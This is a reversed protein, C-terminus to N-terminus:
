RQTALVSVTVGSQWGSGRRSSVVGDEGIVRLGNENNGGVLAMASEGPDGLSKREGGVQLSVVEAEGGDRFLVGVSLEDVWTADIATGSDVILDVRAESGLAVPVSDQNQDRIISSVVLRAGASTALLAAVRAGDRSVELSVIEADHPLTTQVPSQNGDRDSVIISGPDSRQVTWVYGYGDLTPAILGPRADVLLPQEADARALYAGGNGLTAAATKSEALTIETPSTAIVKDSLGQIATVRDNVLYGFQGDRLVLMRSDVQPRLKPASAGIPAITLPTGGVLLDVSAISTIRSLSAELQFRMLQRQGENAALAEDTLSVVAINSEVPVRRPTSLQTGEPFATGVAGELWAPPGSLLATVIRTAATGGPFWRLDPVLAEGAPDLFYLPYPSFLNAFTGTSLVIGDPAASIRWEGNEQVFQFALSQPELPYPTYLGDRDVVASVVIDYAIGTEGLRRFDTSGTRVLVSERPEWEEALDSSLFQRAVDFNGSGSHASLFGSLIAEQEAGAIPGEPVVESGSGTEQESVERGTLVPGSSPISVCSSLAIAAVTAIAVSALRRMRQNLGPRSM